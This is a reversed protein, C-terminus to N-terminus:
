RSVLESAVTRVNGHTRRLMRDSRMSSQRSAFGIDNPEKRSASDLNVSVTVAGAEVIVSATARHGLM